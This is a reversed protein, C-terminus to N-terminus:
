VRRRTDATSSAWPRRPRCSRGTPRGPSGTSTIGHTTGSHMLGPLGHARGQRLRLQPAPPHGGCVTAGGHLDPMPLDTYVYDPTILGRYLRVLTQLLECRDYSHPLYRAYKEKVAVYDQLCMDSVSVDECSWEGPWPDACPFISLLLPFSSCLLLPSLLLRLPLPFSSCLLLPSSFLFIGGFLIIQPLAAQM